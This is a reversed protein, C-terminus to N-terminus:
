GMHNGLRPSLCNSFPRLLLVYCHRHPYLVCLVAVDALNRSRIQSKRAVGDLGEAAEALRAQKSSAWALRSPSFLRTSRTGSMCGATCSLIALIFCLMSYYWFLRVGSVRSPLVRKLCEKFIDDTRQCESLLVSTVCWWHFISGSPVSRGVPLNRKMSQVQLPLRASGGITARTQQKHLPLNSVSDHPVPPM